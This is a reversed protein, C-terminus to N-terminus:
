NRIVILDTASDPTHIINSCWGQLVIHPQIKNWKTQTEPECIINKAIYCKGRYHVTM